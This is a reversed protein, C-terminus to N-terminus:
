EGYNINIMAMEHPQLILDLTLLGELVHYPFSSGNVTLSAIPVNLSEYKLVHYIRGTGFENTVVLDKAFMRIDVSDDDNVKELYSRIILNGLGGWEVGGSLQNLQDAFSDFENINEAFLENGDAHSYMLAPKDIFLDFIFPQIHPWFPQYTGPHRRTLIPFNAYSLDAPYMGEDWDAARTAGLPTDQENVTALYNNEKLLVLTEEPSIGYPFVMVRDYPIGIYKHLLEMRSLGELIDWRQDELPRAPFEDESSVNYKYFEYGDSNNGKQVLSFRDPHTLFLSIVKAESKEWNKPILAITTHFNHEEM